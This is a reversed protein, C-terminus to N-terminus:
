NGLIGPYEYAANPTTSGSRNTGGNYDYLTRRGSDTLGPDDRRYVRPQALWGIHGDWLHHGFEDRKSQQLPSCSLQARRRLSPAGLGVRYPRRLQLGAEGWMNIVSFFSEQPWAESPVITGDSITSKCLEVQHHHTTIFGPMVIMGSCDVVQAHAESQSGVAKIKKGEILVDAKEFDGVAPDLSPCHRGEALDITTVVVRPVTAILDDDEM